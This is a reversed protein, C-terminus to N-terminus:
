TDHGRQQIRLLFGFLAAMLLGVGAAGVVFDWSRGAIVGGLAIGTATAVGQWVGRMWPRRELSAFYARVAAM